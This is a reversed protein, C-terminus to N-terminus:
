LSTAMAITLPKYHAVSYGSLKAPQTTLQDPLNFHALYRHVSESAETFLLYKATFDCGILKYWKNPQFLAKLPNVSSDLGVGRVQTM